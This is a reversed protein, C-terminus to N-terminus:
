GALDKLKPELSEAEDTRMEYVSPEGQRAAYFRKDKRAFLVTEEQNDEGFTVKVKMWPKDLGYEAFRGPQDTIYQQVRVAHVDILFADVTSVNGKAGPEGMKVWEQGRKEFRMEGEPGQIELRRVESAQFGFLYRDRYSDLDQTLQDYTSQNITFVHPWVSNKAYYVAGAGVGGKLKGVLLSHTGAHTTVDLRIQPRDLGYQALSGAKEAEVSKMLAGTLVTVFYNTNGHDTRVKPQTLEWNGNPLKTMEIKRSQAPLGPEAPSSVQNLDLELREAKDFDVPLARKDRLDFLTKELARTEPSDLLFIGPASDLMGYKAYGSPNEGGISLTVPQGQKLKFHFVKQPQDLGYEALSAPTQGDLPIRELKPLEDLFSQILMSDAAIGEPSVIEWRANNSTESGGEAEPEKAAAEALRRFTATPEEPMEITFEQVDGAQFGFLEKKPIAGESEKKPQQNLYYLVGGLVLLVLFAIVTHLVKM